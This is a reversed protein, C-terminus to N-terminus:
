AMGLVSQYLEVLENMEIRQQDEMKRLSIVKRMIKVDFGTGKAEAYVDKIDNAVAAKDEELKEIRNIFAKLQDASFNGSAEPMAPRRVSVFLPM